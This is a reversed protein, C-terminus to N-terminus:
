ERWFYRTYLVIYICCIALTLELKPHGVLAFELLIDGNKVCSLVSVSSLKGLSMREREM